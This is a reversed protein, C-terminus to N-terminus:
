RQNEYSVRLEKDNESVVLRIIQSGCRELNTVSEANDVFLPVRVGYAVSLTNIIDIGLNIQMSTNVDAYSIGDHVVDCRDEIGGNAQERFLRFRAIRFMGNISDEVFRTKYRSYEDMLYLMQEIAELAEAANKADSRLAEIRQRSYDLMSEKAITNNCSRMEADIEAIQRKLDTKIGFSNETMAELEGSLQLLRDNLVAWRVAYDEMDTVEVTNSAEAAYLEKEKALMDSKLQQIDANVRNVRDEAQAKAEKFSGASEEIEALRKKKRTEFSDKAKQLKDAPLPQGCTVCTGGTFVEANTSIWQERSRAISKDCSAVYQQEHEMQIEMRGLRQNLTSIEYRIRNADVAVTQQSRRYARNENELAMLEMQAERIELRKADQASDHEISLVQEHLRNKQDALDELKGKAGAFDLTKLDDITKQFESIRAPIETRAGTFQKKSALLKKKYDELSLKGKSDILSQFQEATQLIQDDEMVGAVNFLIERREQWPLDAAFYRTSTLLRFTDEDVLENVKDQFGNRKIPVSDVYYESTNGTFVAESSGRKTEWKERYTRRLTVEEGNVSFVIDVATLAEHDLVEGNIGLPKVEFNKEGNGRSNKSFLVWMLADYVTSKGVGNAGFIAVNEGNFDIKLHQHCKFNSMELSILRIDKM